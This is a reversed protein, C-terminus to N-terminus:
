AVKRASRRRRALFGAGTIGMGILLANVGPEPVSSNAPSNVFRVDDIGIADAGFNNSATITVQSIFKGSDTFGVFSLSGNSNNSPFQTPVNITKFTGDNFTITDQFFGVQVGTLYVGFAQIPSSFTFTATGGIQEVYKAGGSTVNFGDLAPAIPFNPTNNVYLQNNQYDMGTLTVGPVPTLSAFSGVPSSEFNILNVTGLAGAATDFAAAAAASIPHLNGPGANLDAGSYVTQAQVTSAALVFLSAIALKGYRM